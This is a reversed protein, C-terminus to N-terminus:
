GKNLPYEPHSPIVPIGALLLQNFRPCCQTAVDTRQWCGVGAVSLLDLLCGTTQDSMSAVPQRVTWCVCLKWPYGALCCLHNESWSWGSVMPLPFFKSIQLVLSKGMITTLSTYVILFTYTQFLLNLWFSLLHAVLQYSVQTLLCVCFCAHLWRSFYYLQQKEVFLFCQGINGLCFFPPCGHM